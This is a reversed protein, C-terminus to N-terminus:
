TAIEPVSADITSRIYKGAPRLTGNSYMIATLAFPGYGAIMHSQCWAVESALAVPLLERFTALQDEDHSGPFAGWESAFAIRGGSDAFDHADDLLRRFRNADYTLPHFSVVDLPQDLDAEYAQFREISEAGITVPVAPAEAVVLRHIDAYFDRIPETDPMPRGLHTVFPENMVELLVLAPHDRVAAIVSAAFRKWRPREEEGLHYYGPSPSWCEWIAVIADPGDPVVVISSAEFLDVGPGAQAFARMLADDSDRSRAIVEHLPLEGDSRLEPDIGCSDFLVLDVMLDLRHCCDLAYRLRAEYVEPDLEWGYANTWLRVGNFGVGRVFSLEREILETRATATWNDVPSRSWTPWYCTGRMTRLREIRRAKKAVNSPM